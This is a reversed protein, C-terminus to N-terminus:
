LIGKESLAQRISSSVKSSESEPKPLNNIISATISDVNLADLLEYCGHKVETRTAERAVSIETTLDTTAYYSGDPRKVVIFATEAEM